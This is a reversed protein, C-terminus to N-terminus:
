KLKGDHTLYTGIDFVFQVADVRWWVRTISGDFISLVNFRHKFEWIQTQFLHMSFLSLLNSLFSVNLSRELLSAKQMTVDSVTICTTSEHYTINATNESPCRQIGYYDIHYHTHITIASCFRKAPYEQYTLLELM